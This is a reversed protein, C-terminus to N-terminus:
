GCPIADQLNGHNDAAMRLIDYSDNPAGRESQAVADSSAILQLIHQCCKPGFISLPVLMLPEVRRRSMGLPLAARRGIRNVVIGRATRYLHM